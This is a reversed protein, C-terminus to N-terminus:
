RARMHLPLVEGLSIEWGCEPCRGAEVGELDYQCKPCAGCLAERKQSWLARADAVFESQQDTSKFATAPVFVSQIASLEFCVGAPLETIARVLPWRVLSEFTPASTALFEPTMTFVREGALGDLQGAQLKARLARRLQAFYRDRTLSRVLLSLLVLATFAALWDFSHLQVGPSQLRMFCYPLALGAVVVAFWILIATLFNRAARLHEPHVMAAALTWEALQEPTVRQRLEWCGTQQTVGSDVGVSADPGGPVTHSM